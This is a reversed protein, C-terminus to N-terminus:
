FWGRSVEEAAVREKKAEVLLEAVWTDVTDLERGEDVACSNYIEEAARWLVGVNTIAALTLTGDLDIERWASLSTLDREGSICALAAAGWLEHALLRELEAGRQEATEYDAAFQGVWEVVARADAPALEVIQAAIRGIAEVERCREAVFARAADEVKTANTFLGDGYPWTEVNVISIREIDDCENVRVETEFKNRPGAGKAKSARSQVAAVGYMGRANAGPAQGEIVVKDGDFRAVLGVEALPWQRKLEDLLPGLLEDLERALARQMATSGKM